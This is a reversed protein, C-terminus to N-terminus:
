PDDRSKREANEISRRCFSKLYNPSLQVSGSLEFGSRTTGEPLTEDLRDLWVKLEVGRSERHAAVAARYLMLWNRRTNGYGLKEIVYSLVDVWRERPKRTMSLERHMLVTCLRTPQPGSVDSCRIIFECDEPGILLANEDFYGCEELLKRRHICASLPFTTHFGDHIFKNFVCDGWLRTRRGQYRVDAVGYVMPANTETSCNILTELHDSRWEDDDDLYAVYESDTIAIGCNRAAGPGGHDRHVVRLRPDSLRGDLQDSWTGGDNVVVIDFDQFSQKWISNIARPLLRPRNFSPVIVSVRPM